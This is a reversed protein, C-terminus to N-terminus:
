KSYSRIKDIHKENHLFIFNTDITEDTMEVFESLGGEVMRFCSYGFGRLYEIVENPHYGFKTSWKRLLETFIIPKDRRLTEEAGQFVLYESGETDCKILDIKLNNESVYDDIKRVECTIVQNNAEENLKRMSCNGSLEAYYYFEAQGNCNSFALNNVKINKADNLKINEVFYDYTKKIPEFAYIQGSKIYKSILLSIYGINGGIDFVTYDEELLNKIMEVEDIEYEGFNLIEIPNSRKDDFDCVMKIEDKKTTMIVKNDEINISRIDTDKLLYAYEFISKHKEHMLDIYEVKNIINKRYKDMINKM